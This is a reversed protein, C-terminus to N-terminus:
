KRTYFIIGRKISTVKINDFADRGASESYELGLAQALREFASEEAEQFANEKPFSLEHSRSRAEVM